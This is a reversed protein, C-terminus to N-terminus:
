SATLFSPLLDSEGLVARYSDLTFNFPPSFATWWGSTTFAGGPRFSSILLGLTPTVWLLTLAIVAVHLGAKSVAASLPSTRPARATVAGEQRPPAATVATSM